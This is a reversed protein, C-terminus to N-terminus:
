AAERAYRALRENGAFLGRWPEILARRKASSAVGKLVAEVFFSMAAPSRKYRRMKQEFDVAVDDGLRARFGLLRGHYLPNDGSPDYAIANEYAEFVQARVHEPPPKQTYARALNYGLYEWAYADTKDIDVIRRYVQAAVDFREEDASLRFAMDRLDVAYYRATAFARDIDAQNAPYVRTAHHHVELRSDLGAREMVPDALRRHESGMWAPRTADLHQALFGRVSRPMRLANRGDGVSWPQLVGAAVLTDLSDRTLWTSEEMVKAVVVSEKDDLIIYPGLREDSALAHRLICLREAANAAREPLANYAVSILRRELEAHDHGVAEFRREVDRWALNGSRVLWSLLPRIEPSVQEFLPALEPVPSPLSPPEPMPLAVEPSPRPRVVVWGNRKVCREILERFKSRQRAFYRDNWEAEPGLPGLELADPDVLVGFYTGERAPTAQKIMEWLAEHRAEWSTEPAMCTQALSALGIGAGRTKLADAMLVALRLHDDSDGHATLIPLGAIDESRAESLVRLPPPKPM